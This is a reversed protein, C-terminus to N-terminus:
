VVSENTLVVKINFYSRSYEKGDFRSNGISTLNHIKQKAFWENFMILLCHLLLIIIVYFISDDVYFSSTMLMCSSSMLMCSSSMMLVSKCIGESIDTINFTHTTTNKSIFNGNM